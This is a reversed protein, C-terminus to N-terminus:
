TSGRRPRSHWLSYRPAPARTPFPSPPRRPVVTVTASARLGGARVSVTYDGAKAATFLGDEDMTGGDSSFSPTGPLEARTWDEDTAVATMQLSSGALLLAGAPYVHLREAAGGSSTIPSVLLISTSNARQYGGSPSDILSVGDDGPITAALTTSGGGDLCVAETCGLELLRNAVMTM